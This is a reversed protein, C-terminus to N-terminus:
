RPRDDAQVAPKRGNLEVLRQCERIWQSSPYPWDPRRSGLAHGQKLAALAGTVDGQRQLTLGLNCHAEAYDPKLEIAQRLAAVAKDLDGKQALALGLNNHAMAYDPKRETAKRFAELAEDFRGTEFFVAGLNLHAGASEPRLAVAVTLFRIAEEYQPPQCGCLAMGLDHNIWFDGPFAAQARRLLRVAGERVGRQRLSIDLLFLEEPPQAAADVDRALQELAPRDNRQRAARVAQRWPDTDAASLMQELWGAEPAKKYRALILWHDLAAVLTGRVAAPRRRLLAAAEDATLADARLGYERFAQRYDPLARELVFRDEKVEAQLLRFEELRAVLRSDAEERALAGLLAQVRAALAPEAEDEKLLADARRAAAQAALWKGERQSRQAEELAVEVERVVRAQRAARDCLVWGVCGALVVLIALAAVAASWVVPRHRRAWRRARQLPRAPRARIPRDELFRRLDDALEGATAYREQPNKEMAKLVITELEAPISRDRRRLRTPEESAIQRLLEQRDSGTFAPRLALLEYLTVGLSYIDTRHDIGVRKALAQEPSMYRLTGVLDGTLTLGADGLRFQALGFDTVWVDGRGDVLLNAPKVDRHVIGMQHAYDLAEAAQVGLGAAWRHYAPGGPPGETMLAARAATSAGAEAGAPAPTCAERSTGAAGASQLRGIVAALTQGEILQMAYFHVGRESGVAYVPVIHSHHLCAAARAENLFRQLRRGDMTAAFPLVKLAVKRWLSVQEAEYVIGMGGRGIERLIRYDGLRGRGADLDEEGLPFSPDGAAASEGLEAMLRVAPLLRRLQEAQDPHAGIVAEVDVSEGAQLRAAIDDMLEGLAPDDIGTAARRTLPTSM